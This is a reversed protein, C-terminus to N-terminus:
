YSFTRSDVQTLSCGATKPRPLAQQNDAWSIKAGRFGRNKRFWWSLIWIYSFGRENRVVLGRGLICIMLHIEESGQPRIWSLSSRMMSGMPSWATSLCAVSIGIPFVSFSPALVSWFWNLESAPLM